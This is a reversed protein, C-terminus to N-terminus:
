TSSVISPALRSSSPTTGRRSFGKVAAIRSARTRSARVVEQPVPQDPRAAQRPDVFRQAFGFAALGVASRAGTKDMLRSRHMEVTRPSLGLDRAAEKASHGRCVYRLVALERASLELPHGRGAALDAVVTAACSSFYRRGALVARMCQVLDEVRACDGLYGSAGAELARFVWGPPSQCALLISRTRGKCRSLAEVTQFADERANCPDLIVLDVRGSRAERLLERRGPFGPLIQVSGSRKLEQILLDRFVVWEIMVGVVPKRRRM